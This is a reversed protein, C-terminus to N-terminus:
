DQKNEISKTSLGDTPVFQNSNTQNNWTTHGNRNEQIYTKYVPSKFNNEM